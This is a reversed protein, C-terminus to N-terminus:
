ENSQEIVLNIEDLTTQLEDSLTLPELPTFTQPLTRASRLAADFGLFDGLYRDVNSVLFQGSPIDEGELIQEVRKYFTFFNPDVGFGQDKLIIEERTGTGILAQAQQNAEDTIKAANRRAEARIIAATATANTLIDEREANREQIMSAEVEAKTQEPLDVRNVRFDILDIGYQSELDRLREFVQSRMEDRGEALISAQSRNNINAQIATVTGQRLLDQLRPISGGVQEQFTRLNKIQYTIYYDVVIPEANLALFTGAEGDYEYVFAGILRVEDILPIKFHLGEDQEEHILENFRFVMAQQGPTLTYTSANFLVFGALVLGVIAFLGRIM